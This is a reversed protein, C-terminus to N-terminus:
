LTTRNSTQRQWLVTCEFITSNELSIFTNMVNQVNRNPPLLPGFVLGVMDGVFTGTIAGAFTGDTVTVSGTGTMGTFLGTDDGTRTGGGTGIDVGVAFDGVDRVGVLTGDLIGDFCGGVM